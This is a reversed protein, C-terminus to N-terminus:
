SNAKVLRTVSSGVAASRGVRVRVTILETAGAALRATRYTGGVVAATVDQTGRLYAISYGARTAGTAKVTFREVVNGSNKVSVGFTITTGKEGAGTRGQDVGTVNFVDDGVFAGTGLRIRGNPRHVTSPEGPQFTM